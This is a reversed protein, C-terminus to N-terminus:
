TVSRVLRTRSAMAASTLQLTLSDIVHVERRGDVEVDIVDGPELLPNYLTQFDVSARFGKREALLAEAAEQAQQPTQITRVPQDQAPRRGFPGDWYTPSAPDDDTVFVVGGGDPDDWQLLVANYLDQRTRSADVDIVVGGDGTHYSAVPDGFTTAIRSLRWHGANDCFVVAGLSKALTNIAQWRSGKLVTGAAPTVTLDIGPDVSWVATEWLADDVLFKIEEVVTRTPTYDATLSYDDICSSPDYGSVERTASVLSSKISQVAFVGLTIWEESGDLFRIGKEIRIRSSDTITELAEVNTVSAPALTFSGQRRINRSGDISLSGAAVELMETDEYTRNTTPQMVVARTLSTHSYPLADRFMQSANIVVCGSGVM